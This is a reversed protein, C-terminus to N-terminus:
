KTNDYFPNHGFVINNEPLMDIIFVNYGKYFLHNYDIDKSVCFCFNSYNLNNDKAKKIMANFVQKVDM